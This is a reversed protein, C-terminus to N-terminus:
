CNCYEKTARQSLVIICSVAVLIHLVSLTVSQGGTRGIVSYLYVPIHLSAVVIMVMRAWDRANWIHYCLCLIAMYYVMPVTGIFVLIGTVFAGNSESVMSIDDKIMLATGLIILTCLLGVLLTTIALVIPRDDLVDIIFRRLKSLLGKAVYPPPPIAVSHQKARPISVSRAAAPLPVATSQSQSDFSPIAITAGCTCKVAQWAQSDPITHSKGCRSCAVSISM